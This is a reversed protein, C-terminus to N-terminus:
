NNDIAENALKDAISNKERPIHEFELSSFKQKINFFNIFVKQLNPNKVRYNGKAQEAVLQSDMFCKAKKYGLSTVKQLALNLASWEAVNNTTTGLFESGKAIEKGDKDIIVFGAGALGPNGRSAGDSYINVFDM